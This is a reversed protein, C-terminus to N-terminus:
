NNPMEQLTFSKNEEQLDSTFSLKAVADSPLTLAHIEAQVITNNNALVTIPVEKPEYGAFAVHLIHSGPEINELVFNGFINTRTQVQTGKLSIAAFLVPENNLEADFITGSVLGKEQAFLASSVLIAVFLYKIKM